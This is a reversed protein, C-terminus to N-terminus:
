KAAEIKKTMEERDVHGYLEVGDRAYHAIEAVYEHMAEKTEYTSIPTENRSMAEEYKMVLDADASMPIVSDEDYDIFYRKDQKGVVFLEVDGGVLIATENDPFLKRWESRLREVQARGLSEQTRIVLVDGPKLTVRELDSIQITDNENMEKVKAFEYGCGPHLDKPNVPWYHCIAPRADRDDHIACGGDVFQPCNHPQDIKSGVRIYWWLGQTRFVSYGEFESWDVDSEERDNSGKGGTISAEYEFAHGDTNCCAGCQLCEGTREYKVLEGNKVIWLM